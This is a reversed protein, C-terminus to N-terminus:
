RVESAAAVPHPGAAIPTARRSLRRNIYRSVPKEFWIHYLCGAIITAIVGLLTAVYIDSLLPVRAAIRASISLLPNHILYIAYSAAGLFVAFRPVALRGALELRVIPIILAAIGFGAIPSHSRQFGYAAWLAFAVVAVVSYLWVDFRFPRFVLIACAIGFIFELDIPSLFYRFPGAHQWGLAIGAVIVGGWIAIVTWLRGTFFGLAFIAYFMMEHQLTWAVTLAPQGVPLLTLSALLSWDRSTASLGPLLSYAAIMVISIPLFPVFIRILRSRGYARAGASGIPKMRTTHYIIFGSLVFFFDVGLWGHELIDNLPHPFAGIFDLTSSASHAVAVAIAAIARGAQLSLIKEKNTEFM